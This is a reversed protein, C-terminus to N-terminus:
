AHQKSRELWKAIIGVLADHTVEPEKLELRYSARTKTLIESAASELWSIPKTKTIPPGDDWRVEPHM